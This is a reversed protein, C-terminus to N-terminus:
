APTAVLGAPTPASPPSAPQDPTGATPQPAAPQNAFAAPDFNPLANTPEAALKQNDRKCGQLLLGGFLVLHIALISVVAIKINSKVRPTNPNTGQAILPNPTSM